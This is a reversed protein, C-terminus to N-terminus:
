GGEVPPNEVARRIINRILHSVPLQEEKARKKVWEVQYPYLWITIRIAHTV